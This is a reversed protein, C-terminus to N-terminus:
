DIIVRIQKRVWRYTDAPRFNILLESEGGASGAVFYDVDADQWNWSHIVVDQERKSLAELQGLSPNGGIKRIQITKISTDSAPHNAKHDALFYRRGVERTIANLERRLYTRARENDADEIQRVAQLIRDRLSQLDESYTM